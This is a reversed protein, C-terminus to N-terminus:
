TRTFRGIKRALTADSKRRCIFTNRGLGNHSHPTFLVTKLMGFDKLGDQGEKNLYLVFQKVAPDSM